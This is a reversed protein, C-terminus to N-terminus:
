FASTIVAAMVAMLLSILRIAVAASCHVKFLGAPIAAMNPLTTDGLLVSYNGNSVSLMVAAAPESGATSTRDNSWYSTTGDANVIAFKFQGSGNFNLGGATVRGHYNILQPEQARLATAALFLLVLTRAILTNM